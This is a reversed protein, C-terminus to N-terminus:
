GVASARMKRSTARQCPWQRISSRAKSHFSRGDSLGDGDDHGCRVRRWRKPEFGDGVALGPATPPGCNTEDGEDKQEAQTSENGPRNQLTIEASKQERGPQATETTEEEVEDPDPAIPRAPDNRGEKSEGTEGTENPTDSVTVARKKDRAHAPQNTETIKCERRRNVSKGPVLPLPDRQAFTQNDGENEQEQSAATTATIWGATPATTM